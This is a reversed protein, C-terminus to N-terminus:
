FIKQEKAKKLSKEAIKEGIKILEVARHFEYWKAINQPIKIEIDPVYEAKRYRFIVNMMLDISKNVSNQKEKFIKNWIEEMLNQRKRVEKPLDIKVDKEDGNLNVAIILDSMDSMVPAVPMLNLVGGDVLEMNGIKVPPFFGPISSSAKVAEWLPGQQFWVERKKKLDTAVATFKIPL